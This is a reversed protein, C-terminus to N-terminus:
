AAGGQQQQQEQQAQQQLHRFLPKLEPFLYAVAVELVGYGLQACFAPSQLMEFLDRM